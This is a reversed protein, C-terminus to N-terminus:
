NNQTQDLFVGLLGSPRDPQQGPAAAEPKPTVDATSQWDGMGEGLPGQDPRLNGNENSSM